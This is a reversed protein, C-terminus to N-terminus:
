AAIAGGVLSSASDGGGMENGATPEDEDVGGQHAEDFPTGALHDNLDDGGEHDMSRGGDNLEGDDGGTRGIEHDGGGGEQGGFDHGDIDDAPQM